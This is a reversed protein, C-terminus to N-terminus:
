TSGELRRWGVCGWNERMHRDGTEYSQLNLEKTMKIARQLIWNLRDQVPSGLALGVLASYPPLTAQRLRSAVSRICSLLATPQRQQLPTNCAWTWNPTWWCGWTAKQFAAKWSTVRWSTNTGPTNRGLTFPNANGELSSWLNGTSEKSAQWPRKSNCLWEECCLLSNQSKKKKGTSSGYLKETGKATHYFKSENGGWYWQTVTDM